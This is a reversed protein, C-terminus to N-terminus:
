GGMWMSFVAAAAIAAGAPVQVRGGASSTAVAAPVARGHLALNAKIESRAASSSAAYCALAVLGLALGSAIAYEPLRGLGVWVGAAVALKLDGGGVARRTWAPWLLAGAVLGAAIGSPISTLDGTLARAVIATTAIAVSIANPIRHRFVDFGAAAGLLTSIVIFDPGTAM